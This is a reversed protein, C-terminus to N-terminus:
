GSVETNIIECTKPSYQDKAPIMEISVGFGLETKM